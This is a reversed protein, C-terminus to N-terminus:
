NSSNEALSCWCWLVLRRINSRQFKELPKESHVSASLFPDFGSGTLDLGVSGRELNLNCIPDLGLMEAKSVALYSIDM